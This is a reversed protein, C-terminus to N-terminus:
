FIFNDDNCKSESNTSDCFKVCNNEHKNTEQQIPTGAVMPVVNSQLNTISKFSQNESISKGLGSLSSLRSIESYLKLEHKQTEIDSSPLSNLKNYLNQKSFTKELGKTEEDSKTNTRLEPCFDTINSNVNESNQASSRM